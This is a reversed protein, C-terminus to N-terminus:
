RIVGSFDKGLERAAEVLKRVLAKNDEILTREEEASTATGMALSNLQVLVEEELGQVISEREKQTTM